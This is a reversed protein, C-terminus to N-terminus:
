HPKRNRQQCHDADRRDNASHELLVLRCVIVDILKPREPGLKKASQAQIRKVVGPPKQKNQRKQDGAGRLANRAIRGLNKGVKFIVFLVQALLTQLSKAVPRAAREIFRRFDSGPADAGHKRAAAPFDFQLRALNGGATHCPHAPHDSGFGARGVLQALQGCM